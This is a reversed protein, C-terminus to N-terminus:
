FCDARVHAPDTDPEPEPKPEAARAPADAPLLCSVEHRPHWHQAASLFAHSHSLSLTHTHTHVLSPSPTHTHTHTHTHTLSLSLSLSFPHSHSSLSLLPCCFVPHSLPLSVCRSLSFSSLSLSLPPSLLQSDFGNRPKKPQPPQRRQSLVTKSQHAFFVMRRKTGDASVESWKRREAAM